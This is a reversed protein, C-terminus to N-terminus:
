TYGCAHVCALILSRKHRLRERARLLETQLHALNQCCVNGLEVRKLDNWIGEEPHLSLPMAPCSNWISVTRPGENSGM